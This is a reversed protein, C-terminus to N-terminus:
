NQNIIINDTSVRIKPGSGSREGTSAAYNEPLQTTLTYSISDSSNIADLKLTTSLNQTGNQLLNAIPIIKAIKEETAKSSPSTHLLLYLNKYNKNSQNTISLKIEAKDNKFLWSVDGLLFNDTNKASIQDKTSIERFTLQNNESTEIKTLVGKKLTQANITSIIM